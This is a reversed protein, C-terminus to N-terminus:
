PWDMNQHLVAQLVQAWLLSAMKELDEGTFLVLYEKGSNKMLEKANGSDVVLFNINDYKTSKGYPFM